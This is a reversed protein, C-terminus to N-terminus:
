RPEAPPVLAPHQGSALRRYLAGILRTLVGDRGARREIAQVLDSRLLPLQHDIRNSLEGVESVLREVVAALDAAAADQARGEDDLRDELAGLSVELSAFYEFREGRDDSIESEVRTELRQLMAGLENLDGSPDDSPQASAVGVQAPHREADARQLAEYIGAM